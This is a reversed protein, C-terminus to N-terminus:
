GAKRHASVSIEYKGTNSNLGSRFTCTVGPKESNFESVSITDVSFGKSIMDTIYAGLAARCSKESDFSQMAEAQYIGNEDAVFSNCLVPSKYFIMVMSKNSDDIHDPKGRSTILETRSKGIYNQVNLQSYVETSFSLVGIIIQFILFYRKM